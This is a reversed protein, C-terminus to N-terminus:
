QFPCTMVVICHIPVQRVRVTKACMMLRHAALLFKVRAPSQFDAYQKGTTDETVITLQYAKPM